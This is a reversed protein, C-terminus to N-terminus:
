RWAEADSRVSVTPRYISGLRVCAATQSVRSQMTSVASRNRDLM